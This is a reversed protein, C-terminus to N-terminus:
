AKEERPEQIEAWRVQAYRNLERVVSGLVRPLPDISITRAIRHAQNSGGAQQIMAEKVRIRKLWVLNVIDRPAMPAAELKGTDDLAANLGSLRTFDYSETAKPLVMRAFDQAADAIIEVGANWSALCDKWHNAAFCNASNVYDDIGCEDLFRAFGRKRLIAAMAQIRVTRPPHRSAVGMEVIAKDTSACLPYHLTLYALLAAPGAVDVSIADCLFEIVHDHWWDPTAPGSSPSKLIDKHIGAVTTALEEFAEAIRRLDSLESDIGLLKLDSAKKTDKAILELASEPLAEHTPDWGRPRLLGGESLLEGIKLHAIEHALSALLRTRLLESRPVYTVFARFDISYAHGLVAVPLWDHKAKEESKIWLEGYIDGYFGLLVADIANYFGHLESLEDTQEPTTVWDWFDRTSARQDIVERYAALRHEARSIRYERSVIRSLKVMEKPDLPDIHEERLGQVELHVKNAFGQVSCLARTMMEYAPSNRQWIPIRSVVALLHDADRQISLLRERLQDIHEDLAFWPKLLADNEFNGAPAEGM